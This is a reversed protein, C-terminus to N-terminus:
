EVYDDKRNVIHQILTAADDIIYRPSLGILSDIAVTLAWWMVRDDSHLSRIKQLDKLSLNTM